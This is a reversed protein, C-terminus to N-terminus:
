SSSHYEEWCWFLLFPPGPDFGPDRCTGMSEFCVVSLQQLFGRTGFLEMIFEAVHQKSLKSESSRIAGEECFIGCQDTFDISFDLFRDIEIEM